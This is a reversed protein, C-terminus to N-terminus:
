PDDEVRGDPPPDVVALPTSAFVSAGRWADKVEVDLRYAGAPLPALRALWQRGDLVMSVRAQEVAGTVVLTASGGVVDDQAGSQGAQVEAGVVVEEGIVATEDRDWGVWPVAPRAAGRVPLEGGQLTLLQEVIAATSGM